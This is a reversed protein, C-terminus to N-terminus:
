QQVKGLFETSESIYCFFYFINLVLAWEQFMGQSCLVGTLRFPCDCKFDFGDIRCSSRKSCPNINTCLDNRYQCNPGKFPAKCICSLIDGLNTLFFFIELNRMFIVAQVLFYQDTYSSTLIM